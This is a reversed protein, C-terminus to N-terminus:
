PYKLFLEDSPPSYMVEGLLRTDPKPVEHRQGFGREARVESVWWGNDRLHTKEGKLYTSTLPKRESCDRIKSPLM